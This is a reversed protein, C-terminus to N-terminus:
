NAKGVLTRLPLGTHWDFTYNLQISLQQRSLSNPHVTSEDKFAFVSYQPGLSINAFVNFNLSESM